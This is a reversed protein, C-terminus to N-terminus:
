DCNSLAEELTHREEPDVSLGWEQKVSVVTQAFWCDASELSRPDQDPTWDAADKDSKEGNYDATALTLNPLWKAFRARRSKTWRCGGSDHAEGLAVVHEVQLCHYSGDDPALDARCERRTGHRLNPSTRPPLLEGEFHGIWGGDRVVIRPRREAATYKYHGRVYPREGESYRAKETRERREDCRGDICACEREVRLGNWTEESAAPLALLPMLVASLYKM